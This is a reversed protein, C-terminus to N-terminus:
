GRVRHLGSGNPRVEMLKGSFSEYRGVLFAIWKGNPSWEPESDDQRDFTLRRAPGGNRRIYLENNSVCHPLWGSGCTKGNRDKASVYVVSRGDPSWAGSGRHVVHLDDGNPRIAYIPGGGGNAYFEIWRGDHSWFPFRAGLSRFAINRILHGTPTLLKLHDREGDEWAWAVIVKGDPSWAPDNADKAVIHRRSGDPAVMWLNSSAARKSAGDMFAIRSGDPSWTPEDGGGLYIPNSGIRGINFLGSRGSIGGEVALRSGDPSWAFTSVQQLQPARTAGAAALATVGAAVIMLAV